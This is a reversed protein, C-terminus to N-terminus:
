RRKSPPKPLSILVDLGLQGAEAGEVRGQAGDTAVGFGFSGALGTVVGVGLLVFGQGRAVSGQAVLVLVLFVGEGLGHGVALFPLM